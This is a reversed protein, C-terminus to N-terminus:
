DSRLNHSRRMRSAGVITAGADHGGFLASFVARLVTKKIRVVNSDTVDIFSVTRRDNQHVAIESVDLTMPDLAAYERIEDLVMTHNREVTLSVALTVLGRPGVGVARLHSLVDHPVQVMQMDRAGVDDSKGHTRDNGAM